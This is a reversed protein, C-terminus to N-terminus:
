LANILLLIVAIVELLLGLGAIGALNNLGTAASFVGIGNIIIAQLCVFILLLWWNFPIDLKSSRVLRVQILILISIIVCVLSLLIGAIDGVLVNNYVSFTYGVIGCVAGLLALVRAIDWRESYSSKRRGM